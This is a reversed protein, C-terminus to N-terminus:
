LALPLGYVNYNRESRDERPMSYGRKFIHLTDVFLREGWPYSNFMDIDDVVQLYFVDISTKRHHCRLVSELIFVMGLKLKDSMQNCGRFADELQPLTVTTHGNFYDSVLRKDTSITARAAKESTYRLRTILAFEFISFTAVKGGLDFHIADGDVPKFLRYLLSDILQGSFTFSAFNCNSTVKGPAQRLAADLHYDIKC